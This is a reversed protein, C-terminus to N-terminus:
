VCCRLFFSDFSNPRMLFKRLNTVIQLFWSLFTRNKVSRRVTLLTKLTTDIRVVREEKRKKHTFGWKTAYYELVRNHPGAGAGRWQYSKYSPMMGHVNLFLTQQKEEGALLRLTSYIAQVSLYLNISVLTSATIPSDSLNCLLTINCVQVM